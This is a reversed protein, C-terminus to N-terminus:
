PRKRSEEDCFDKLKKSVHVKSENLV